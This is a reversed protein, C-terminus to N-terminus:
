LIHQVRIEKQSGVSRSAVLNCQSTSESFPLLGIRFRLFVTGTWPLAAFNPDHPSRDPHGVGAPRSQDHIIVANKSSTNVFHYLSSAPSALKRSENMIRQRRGRLLLYSGSLIDEASPRVAKEFYGKYPLQALRINYSAASMLAKLRTLFQKRQLSYKPEVTTAVNQMALHM